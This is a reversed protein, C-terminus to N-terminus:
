VIGSMKIVEVGADEWVKIIRNLGISDSAMHGAVIINGINQAEVSKKVNEPVHMCIITGVGAEFYAKFIDEGGGTGGAMLVAIKGAYSEPGGVRIAPKGETSQYEHIENLAEVIDGLKTKPDTEFRENLYGQVFRETVLDAPMHINMYPMDLLKAASRSRDYNKVHSNLEVQAARKKLLKQAKNIPVGFEVMKDIQIEMVEHFKIIQDGSTPHHSIVCGVNLEKGLIIEPTEMDIGILVKKIDNGEVYIGSDAPEIELNALKLAKDMLEKTTFM